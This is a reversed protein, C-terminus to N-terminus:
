RVRRSPNARWCAMPFFAFKTPPSRWLRILFSGIPRPLTVGPVRTFFTTTIPRSNRTERRPLFFDVDFEATVRGWQERILCYVCRFAFEDRLWPRYSDPLRYGQPGHRRQHAAGPYEFPEM